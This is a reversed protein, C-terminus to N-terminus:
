PRVGGGCAAWRPPPGPVLFAGPLSFHRPGPAVYWESAGPCIDSLLLISFECMAQRATACGVDNWKGGPGLEGCDEGNGFDDNPEDALWNTYVVDSGDIWEFTGEVNTDTLGLWIRNETANYKSTVFANEEQGGITVPYAGDRETTCTAVAYTYNM